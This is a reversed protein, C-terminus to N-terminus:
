HTVSSIATIDIAGGHVINTSLYLHEKFSEVSELLPRRNAKRRGGEREREERKREREKGREKQRM